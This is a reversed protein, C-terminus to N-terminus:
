LTKLFQADIKKVGTKFRVQVFVKNNAKKEVKQVTGIGFKVHKVPQNKKWRTGPIIRSPTSIKKKTVGVPKKFSFTRVASTEPLQAGLWSAFFTHAKSENTYSCDHIPALRDPVEELFRSRVQDAMQGYTYRYRCHTLLLREKARTIGVYFLRREEELADDLHLSRSSPLLGEELGCVAVIDFELGKAAHLTMMLVPNNNDEDKGTSKEQMLAVEDLFKEITETGNDEFHKTAHVLEKINDMRELAEQQEYTKKVHALYGTERMVYEIAVSPKHEKTVAAFIKMFGYVAAKKIGKLEGEESLKKAVDNFTLFPELNWREYFLEEFKAGLGRAPCNIVRFFSARDFPNVILRLYALLDKIEKREYFQVGGIIKYPISNKILAEELARSQYHARYLIALSQKSDQARATQMCQAILQAEQYESMSTIGRIRNHAVRDSWLRKPNRNVNHEIVHNAVDLIPQVSRYNQEITVVATKTFDNKFNIINAVTAGRWSYISQDEDGVVCISDIALSKKSKQSMKKLLTHQVVNTDQYEDVLIHRVRQQFDQQFDKNAFLKLAELLLDDFDLCKSAKKEKEYSKYVDHLLPNMAYLDNVADTDLSKNKLQSIQYSLQKATTQKGLNARQIIGSLIKKQDDTDLISFFPDDLYEQNLKLLRLCYSHFTGIFPLPADTGLFKKIREGMERAAKNTFTLAVIESPDVNKNLILHAIRATIVRTKGSGAGAVVLLAGRTSEVAKKQDANLQEQLFTDFTHATTPAM